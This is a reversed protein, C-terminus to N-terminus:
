NNVEINNEGEAQCAGAILTGDTLVNLYYNSMLETGDLPDYPISVLYDPILISSLDVCQTITSVTDCTVACDEATTGIMQYTDVNSDILEPLSLNAVQYELIAFRIDTVDKLRQADREIDPSSENITILEWSNLMMEYTSQYNLQNTTGINYIISYINSGVALYTYRRSATQIGIMNNLVVEKLSTENADPNYNLYWNRASLGLPNELILIQIFETTKSNFIIEMKDETLARVTWDSPYLISYNFATNIYQTVTTNDALLVGAQSPDYLNILESADSYGDEDSDVLTSNTKYLNEEIDTLGDSDSDLGSLLEIGEETDIVVDDGNDVNEVLPEILTPGAQYEGAQLNLAGLVGGDELIFTLKYSQNSEQPVYIYSNGGPNPNIPISDLYKDLLDDLIDPYAKMEQYYFALASRVASVDDLRQKDRDSPTSAIEEEPETITNDVPVLTNTNFSDDILLNDTPVSMSTYFWYGVGIIAIVIIAIIIIMLKPSGSKKPSSLSNSQKVNPMTYMTSTMGSDVSQSEQGGTNDVLQNQMQNKNDTFM